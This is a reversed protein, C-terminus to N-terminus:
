TWETLGERACVIKFSPMSRMRQAYAALSSWETAPKPMNRSWRMLMTVLFDVASLREGLVHRRGDQLLTELRDWSKEISVRAHSRTEVVADPGAVEDSYFWRRFAPQLMNACYFAWRYYQDRDHSGLSPALKALPHRDALTLLLAACETHAQGEILLTPVVGDPNLRLYQTTKQQKAQLDVMHLKHPVDLDILLWHVVFSAAGPAFYLEYV